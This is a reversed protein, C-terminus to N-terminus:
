WANPLSRQSFAISSIMRRWLTGHGADCGFSGIASGGILYDGRGALHEGRRDAVHSYATIQFSLGGAAASLIQNYLTEIRRQDKSVIDLGVAAQDTGFFCQLKSKRANKDSQTVIAMTTVSVSELTAEDTVVVITAGAVEGRAPMTGLALGTVVLVALLVRTGLNRVTM